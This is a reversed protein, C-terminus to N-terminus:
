HALVTTTASALMHTVGFEDRIVLGALPDVDLIQGTRERGEHLVRVPRGLMHCRRRWDDLWSQDPRALLSHLQAILAALLRLRDFRRGAAILLSTARHAVAPDFDGTAQLVNIGIGVVVHAARKEVLIGAVKRNEVLVDNPWKIQTALQTTSEIALATALGALLTLREVNEHPVNALLISTLISQGAPAHWQNGRRGRGATQEDAFVVLGDNRPDAAASWAADNTSATRQFVQVRQALRWHNQQALHELLDRYCGLGIRELHVHTPSRELLCGHAALDALARLAADPTLQADRTLAHMTTEPSRWLHLLVARTTAESITAPTPM